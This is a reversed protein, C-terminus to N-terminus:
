RAIRLRAAPLVQLDLLGGRIIRSEAQGAIEAHRRPLLDHVRAQNLIVHPMESLGDEVDRVRGSRM